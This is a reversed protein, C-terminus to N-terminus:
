QNNTGTGKAESIEKGADYGLTLRSNNHQLPRGGGLFQHLPQAARSDDGLNKDGVVADSSDLTDAVDLLPAVLVKAILPDYLCTRTQVKPLFRESFQISIIFLYKGSDPSNWCLQFIAYEITHFIGTGGGGRM